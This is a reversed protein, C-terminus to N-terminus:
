EFIKGLNLKMDTWYGKAKDKIYEGTKDSYEYINEKLEYLNEGAKASFDNIKEGAKASFDKIKEGAKESFDNITEGAKASFDNITEGAKASFEKIKEGAKESFENSKEKASKTYYEYYSKFSDMFENYYGKLEEFLPGKNDKIFENVQNIWEYLDISKFQDMNLYVYKLIEYMKQISIDKLDRSIKLYVYKLIEYMNQISIDKLDRSIIGYLINFLMFKDKEITLLLLDIILRQSTTCKSGFNFSALKLFSEFKSLYEKPLYKRLIKIPVKALIREIVCNLFGSNRIFELLKKIRQYNSEWSNENSSDDSEEYGSYSEEESNQYNEEFNEQNNEEFNEEINKEINEGNNEQNNDENEMETNLSAEIDIEAHYIIDSNDISEQYYSNNEVCKEDDCDKRDNEEDDVTIVIVNDEFEKELILSNRSKEDFKISSEIEDVFNKQEPNDSVKYNKINKSDTSGEGLNRYKEIEMTYIERINRLDTIIERVEVQLELVTQINKNLEKKLERIETKYDEYEFSEGYNENCKDTLNYIDEKPKILELNNTSSIFIDEKDDYEHFVLQKDDINEKNEIDDSDDENFDKENEIFAITDEYNEDNDTMSSQSNENNNKLNEIYEIVMIVFKPIEISPWFKILIEYFNQAALESRLQCAERLELMNEILKYYKTLPEFYKEINKKYEEWSINMFDIFLYFSTCLPEEQLEYSIHILVYEFNIDFCKSNKVVDGLLKGSTIACSFQNENHTQTCETLYEYLKPMELSVKLCQMNSQILEPLLVASSVTLCIEWVILLIM